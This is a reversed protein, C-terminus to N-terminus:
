PTRVEPCLFAAPADQHEVRVSGDKNVTVRAVVERRGGRHRFGVMWDGTTTKSAGCATGELTNMRMKFAEADSVRQVSERQISETPASSTYGQGAIHREARKVADAESLVLVTPPKEDARKCAAALSVVLALWIGNQVRNRM